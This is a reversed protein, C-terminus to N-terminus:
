TTSTTGALTAVISVSGRMSGTGFYLERGARSLYSRTSTTGRRPRIGRCSSNEGGAGLRPRDSDRLSSDRRREDLLPRLVSTDYEGVRCITMLSFEDRRGLLEDRFVEVGDRERDLDAAGTRCRSEILLMSYLGRRLERRETELRVGEGAGDRSVSELVVWCDEGAETALESKLEGRERAAVLPRGGLRKRSWARPAGSEATQSDGILGTFLLDVSVEVAVSASVVVVPDVVV